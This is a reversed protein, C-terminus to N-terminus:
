KYIGGVKEGKALRRGSCVRSLYRVGCGKGVQSWPGPWVEVLGCGGFFIKVSRDLPVWEDYLVACQIIM